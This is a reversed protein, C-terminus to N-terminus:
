RSPPQSLLSSGNKPVIKHTTAIQRTLRRGQVPPWVDTNVSSLIAKLTCDLDVACVLPFSDGDTQMLDWYSDGEGEELDPSAQM